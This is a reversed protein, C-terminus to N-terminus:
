INVLNLIGKVVVEVYVFVSCLLIIVLGKVEYSEVKRM